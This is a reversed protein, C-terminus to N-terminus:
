PEPRDAASAAKVFGGGAGSKETRANVMSSLVPTCGYCFGCENYYFCPESFWLATSAVYQKGAYLALAQAYVSHLVHKVFM